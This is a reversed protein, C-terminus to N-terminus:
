DDEMEWRIPIENEVLRLQELEVEQEDIIKQQMLLVEEMGRLCNASRHCIDLLQEKEQREQHMLFIMVGFGVLLPILIQM